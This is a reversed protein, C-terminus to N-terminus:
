RKNLNMNMFAPTLGPDDSGKVLWRTQDGTEPQEIKIVEAGLLALQMTAFPGALVQTIDIIRIGEFAQPM